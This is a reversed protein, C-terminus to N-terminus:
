LGTRLSMQEKSSDRNYSDFTFILRKRRSSYTFHPGTKRGQCCRKRKSNYPFFMPGDLLLKKHFQAAGFLPKGQIFFFSQM